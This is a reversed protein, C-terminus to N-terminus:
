QADPAIKRATVERGLPTERSYAVWLNGEADYAACAFRPNGDPDLTRPPSWRGTDARYTSSKLVWSAAARTRESWLLTIEGGLGAILRPTCVNARSAAIVKPRSQAKRTKPDSPRVTLAKTYGRGLSDWACWLQGDGGVAIAPVTDIRQDSVAWPAGLDLNAGVTRVFVTPERPGKPYGEPRHYDWSWCVAVGDGYPAVDPDSHDEYSPVDTPSIQVERSWRKGDHRRVYVEKDRSIGRIKCWKYYTVWVNGGADSVLRAHMADDDARTLQRRRVPSSRDPEMATFINYNKGDANSTWSVWLRNKGDIVLSPDFEDARTAAVPRDESWKNGDFVRLFVDSTGSRNSTLALYVRGGTGCAIAPFRDRRRSARQEGSRRITAPAYPVGDRVVRGVKRVKRLSQELLPALKPMEKELVSTAKFVIRHQSDTLVMFPWGDRNYRRELSRDPDLLHVFRSRYHRQYELAALENDGSIVRIM